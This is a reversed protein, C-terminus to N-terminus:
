NNGTIRNLEGKAKRGVYRVLHAAVLSHGIGWIKLRSHMRRIEGMIDGLWEWFHQYKGSSKYDLHPINSRSEWGLFLSWRRVKLGGSLEM